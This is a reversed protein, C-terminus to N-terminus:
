KVQWLRLQHPKDSWTIIAYRRKLSGYYGNFWITNIQSPLSEHAMLLVRVTSKRSFYSWWRWDLLSVLWWLRVRCMTFGLIELAMKTAVRYHLFIIATLTSGILWPGHKSLRVIETFCRTWGSLCIWIPVILTSPWSRFHGTWKLFSRGSESTRKVKTSDAKTEARSERSQKNQHVSWEWDNLDRRITWNSGHTM